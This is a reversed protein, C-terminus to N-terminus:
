VAPRPLFRVGRRSVDPLLRIALVAALLLGAGNHLTAATAPSRAARSAAGLASAAALAADPAATLAPEGAVTFAPVGTAATATHLTAMTYM